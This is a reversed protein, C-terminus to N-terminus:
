WAQCSELGNERMSHLQGFLLNSAKSFSICAFLISGGEPECSCEQPQINTHTCVHLTIKEGTLLSQEDCVPWVFSFLNHAAYHVRRPWVEAADTNISSILCKRIM